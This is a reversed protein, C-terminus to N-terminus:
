AINNMVLSVLAGSTMFIFVLRKESERGIQKLRNGIWQVVGTDELAHTIIFLGIITIVANRSFGSLAEQPTVVGTFSLVLLVLIAVLDARLLNSIILALAAFVVAILIIAQTSLM